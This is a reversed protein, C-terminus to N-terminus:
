NLRAKAAFRLRQADRRVHVEIAHQVREAVIEGPTDLDFTVQLTAREANPAHFTVALEVRDDHVCEPTRPSETNDM